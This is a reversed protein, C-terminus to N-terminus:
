RGSRRSSRSRTSTPSGASPRSSRTTPASCCASACCRTRMTSSNRRSTSRRGARVPRHLGAAQAGGRRDGRGAVPVVPARARDEPRPLRRRRRRRADPELVQASRRRRRAPGHRRGVARYPLAGAPGGGRDGRLAPLGAPREPLLGARQSPVQLRARRARRDASTGRRRWAQGQAPRHERVPDARRREGARGRRDGRQPCAAARHVVGLRRHLRRGDHAARPLLRALEAATPRASEGRFHRMPPTACITPSRTSGPRRCRSTRTSTSQSLTRSHLSEHEAM